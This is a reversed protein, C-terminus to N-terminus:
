AAATGELPLGAAEWDALGGAYRRVKRFGHRTLFHWAAISAPCREDSCYVVIEDDPDLLRLADHPDAINLSGPIHKAQFAWAGLVMVLKVGSHRELLHTLDERDILDM